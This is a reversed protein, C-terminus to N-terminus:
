SKFNELDLLLTGLINRESILSKSIEFLSFGKLMRIEGLLGFFYFYFLSLFISAMWNTIMQYPRSLPFTLPGNAILVM